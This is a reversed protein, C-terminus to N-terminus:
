HQEAGQKRRRTKRLLPAAGCGPGRGGPGPRPGGGARKSLDRELEAAAWDPWSGPWRSVARWGRLAPIMGAVAPPSCPARDSPAPTRLLGRPTRAGNCGVAGKRQFPRACQRTGRLPVSPGGLARRGGPGPGPTGGGVGCRRQVVYLLQAVWRSTSASWLRGATVEWRFEEPTTSQNGLACRVGQARDAAWTRLVGPGYPRHSRTCWWFRGYM